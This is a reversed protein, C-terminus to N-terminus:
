DRSWKSRLEVDLASGRVPDSVGGPVGLGGPGNSGQSPKEVPSPISSLSDVHQDVEARAGYAKLATTLGLQQDTKAQQQKATHAVVFYGVLAMLGSFIPGISHMLGTFFDHVHQM